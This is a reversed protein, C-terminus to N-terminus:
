TPEFEFISMFIDLPAWQCSDGCHEAASAFAFAMSVTTSAPRATSGNRANERLCPSVPPDMHGLPQHCSVRILLWSRRIDQSASRSNGFSQVRGSRWTTVRRTFRDIEGFAQKLIPRNATLVAIMRDRLHVEPHRVFSGFVTDRFLSLAIYRSGELFVM